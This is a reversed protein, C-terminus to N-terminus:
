TNIRLIRCLCSFYNLNSVKIRQKKKGILLIKFEPLIACTSVCLSRSESETQPMIALETQLFSFTVDILM